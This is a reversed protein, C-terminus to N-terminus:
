SRAEKEFEPYGLGEGENDIAEVWAERVIDARLDPQPIVEYVRDIDDERLDVLEYGLAKHVAMYATDAEIEITRRIVVEFTSM